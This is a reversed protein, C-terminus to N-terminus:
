CARGGCEGNWSRATALILPWPADSRLQGAMVGSGEARWGGARLQAVLWALPPPGHRLRRAIEAVPWCRASVGTDARLRELLRRSAPALSEGGEGALELLASLTPPHQLPGLWLPGSVALPPPGSSGTSGGSGAGGAPCACDAWRGLRLLPQQ